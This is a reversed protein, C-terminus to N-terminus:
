AAVQCERHRDPRPRRCRGARQPYATEALNFENAIAQLLPDPLESDLPVVAAPNGAFPKSAFADIVYYNM